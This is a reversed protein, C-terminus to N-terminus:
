TYLEIQNSQTSLAGLDLFSRAKLTTHVRDNELKFMAGTLPDVILIGVSNLLNLWYWGDLKFDIPIIQEEYGHKSIKLQYAAKKFYGAGSKLNVTTPSNGKFIEIGKANVITINAESPSTNVTLPYTSKSFITACSTSFLIFSLLLFTILTNKM